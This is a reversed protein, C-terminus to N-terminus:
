RFRKFGHVWIVLAWREGKTVPHVKHPMYSPFLHVSGLEKTGMVPGAHDFVELEGGEYYKDESLQVSM